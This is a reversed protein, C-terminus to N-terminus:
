VESTTERIKRIWELDLVEKMTAREAPEYRFCRELLGQLGVIDEESLQEIERAAPPSSRMRRLRLALPKIEQYEETLEEIKKTGDEEYYDGRQEWKGWWRSPLRGLTDVIESLIDDATPMGCEFLSKNNFLDYITCAFAWIEAPQGVPEGLLAEPAQLALPTNWHQRPESTFSAEGFDLISIEGVPSGILDLLTAPPVAYPPAEPGVKAGDERNVIQRAPPGLREYLKM